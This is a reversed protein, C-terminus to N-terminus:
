PNVRQWIETFVALKENLTEVYYEQLAKLVEPLGEAQSGFYHKYHDFEDNPNEEVIVILDNSKNYFINVVKGIKIGNIEKLGLLQLKDM